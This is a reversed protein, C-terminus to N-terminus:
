SIEYSCRNSLSTHTTVTTGEFWCPTARMASGARYVTGSWVHRYLRVQLYSCSGYSYGSCLFLNGAGSRKIIPCLFLRPFSITRVSRSLLIYIYINKHRPPVLRSFDSFIPSIPYPIPHSPHKNIPNHLLTPTIYLPNPNYTPGPILFLRPILILLATVSRIRIHLNSQLRVPCRLCQLASHAVTDVKIIYQAKLTLNLGIQHDACQTDTTMPEM